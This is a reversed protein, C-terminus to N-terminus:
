AELVLEFRTPSVSLMHTKEGQLLDEVIKGAGRPIKLLFCKAVRRERDIVIRDVVQRIMSKRESIPAVSFYNDFDDLFQSANGAVETIQQQDPISYQFQSLQLEFRAKQSELEKIRGAIEDLNIGKEALSILSSIQNSIRLSSTRMEEVREQPIKARDEIHRDIMQQLKHVVDSGTLKEKVTAILSTEFREADITMFSCVTPGKNVYGSDAYTRRKHRNGPIGITQSQGAFSFGCHSCKILGSLLYPSDFRSKAMRGNESHVTPPNAGKWQQQTVIALHSNEVIIWQSSDKVWYRQAFKGIGRKKLRNYVRAGMYTPNRVIAGITAGSWKQDWRQWKGRKPCSINESNLLKAIKGYGYKHSMRLEFIRRVVEIEKPDGPEWVVYEEKPRIQESIPLGKENLTPNGDKGRIVELVRKTLTFRNVAVRRYGYPATGGGSHGLRVASICGDLTRESKKKSEEQSLGGEFAGLMTDFTQNGTNAITRVMIVEVNATKKFHTKYYISDNAGARGWRSEDLVIVTQFNPKTEVRSRLRVFEPRKEFSTGSKGVDIFWEVLHFGNKGAWDLILQKQQEPSTEAQMDTSCRVYGVATKMEYEEFTFYGTTNVGVLALTPTRM